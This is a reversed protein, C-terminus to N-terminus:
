RQAKLRRIIAKAIKSKEDFLRELAIEYLEYADLITTQKLATGHTGLNGVVRLAHLIESFESKGVKHSLKDIRKALDLLRRKGPKIPHKPDRVVQFRAVGFHDMLRELSTRMRSACVRYDMWYLEFSLRIERTVPLPVNDPIEIIPPPPTMIRPELYEVWETNEEGSVEFVTVTNGAVAVVEKCHINDCELLMTFRESCVEPNDRCVDSHQYGPQKIRFDSKELRLRGRDCEPCPYRPVFKQTISARWIAKNL